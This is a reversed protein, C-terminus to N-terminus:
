DCITHFMFSSVSFQFKQPFNLTLRYIKKVLSDALDFLLYSKKM